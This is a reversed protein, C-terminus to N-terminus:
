FKYAFLSLTQGGFPSTPSNINSNEFTTPLAICNFLFAFNKICLIYIWPLARSSKFHMCAHLFFHKICQFFGLVEKIVIFGGFIIHGMIDGLTYLHASGYSSHSCTIVVICHASLALYTTNIAACFCYFDLIQKGASTPTPLLDNDDAVIWIQWWILAAFALAGPALLGFLFM